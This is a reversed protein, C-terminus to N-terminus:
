ARGACAASRSTRSAPARPSRRAREVLVQQAAVRSSTPAGEGDAISSATNRRPWSGSSARRRPRARGRGRSARRWRRATSGGRRRMPKAERKPRRGSRATGTDEDNGTRRHGPRGSPGDSCGRLRRRRGTPTGAVPDAPRSPWPRAAYPQRCPSDAHEDAAAPHALRQEGPQQGTPQAVGPRRRADDLRQRARRASSASRKGPTADDASPRRRGVARDDRHLGAVDVAATRAARDGGAGRRTSDIAAPTVSAAARPRRRRGPTAPRAPWASCAPARRRRRPRWRRPCRGVPSRGRRPRPSGRRRRCRRAPRGLGLEVGDGAQGAGARGVHEQHGLRQDLGAHEDAQGAVDSASAVWGSSPEARSSASRPSGGRQAGRDGRGAAGGRGPQARELVARSRAAKGVGHTAAAARLRSSPPRFSTQGHFSISETASEKGVGTSTASDGVGTTLRKRCRLGRPQASLPQHWRPTPM